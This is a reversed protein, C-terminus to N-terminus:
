ELKGRRAETAQLVVRYDTSSAYSVGRDISSMSALRKGYEEPTYNPPLPEVPIGLSQYVWEFQDQNM